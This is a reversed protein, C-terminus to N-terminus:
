ISYKRLVYIYIHFVSLWLYLPNDKIYSKCITKNYRRIYNSGVHLRHMYFLQM